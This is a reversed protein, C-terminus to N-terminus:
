RAAFGRLAGGQRCNATIMLRRCIPGGPAAGCAVSLTSGTWRPMMHDVIVLEPTHQMCWALGMGPAHQFTQAATCGLFLGVLARFLTLNIESDDIIAIRNM